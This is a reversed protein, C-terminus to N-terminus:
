RVFGAIFVAVPRAESNGADRAALAELTSEFQECLETLSAATLRVLSDSMRCAEIWEPPLSTLRPEFREVAQMLHEVQRRRMLGSVERGEATEAFDINNWSTTRHVAQWRRARPHGSPDDAETVFGFEALKRLHYSTSGTDTGFRRALETANAPGHERLSGLMKLRLPHTVAKIEEVGSVRKTEKM